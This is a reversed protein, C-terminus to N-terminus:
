VHARGIQEVEAMQVKLSPNREVAQALLTQEGPLTVGASLAGKLALPETAKRGLLANLAHRAVAVQAQAERLAKEAAVTEVEAKTAEFEPAFGGEVKKKAAEVFTKTLTVRQEKLTVVQEAALLAYFSRRMQIALQSRFATLALERTEVNKEAVARRLARKGPFEFTQTAELDGHFESGESRVHKIGPAGSVEPNQWTRATLVEGRAAAIDASLGRIEPNNKLAEAVLENLTVPTQANALTAGCMSLALVFKSFPYM